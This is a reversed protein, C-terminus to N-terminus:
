LKVWIANRNIWLISIKYLNVKLIKIRITLKYNLSISGVIKNYIRWNMYKKM